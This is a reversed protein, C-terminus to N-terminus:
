SLQRQGVVDPVIHMLLEKKHIEFSDKDVTRLAIISQGFRKYDFSDAYHKKMYHNIETLENILQSKTIKDFNYNMSYVSVSYLSLFLFVQHRM